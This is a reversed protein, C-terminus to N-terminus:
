ILNFRLMKEYLVSKSFKEVNYNEVLFKEVNFKNKTKLLFNLINSFDHGNVMFWIKEPINLKLSDLTINFHNQQNLIGAIRMSHLIKTHKLSSINKNNKILSNIYEEINLNENEFYNELKGFVNYSLFKSSNWIHFKVCGLQYAMYLATVYIKNTLNNIQSNKFIKDDTSLILTELDHTNNSLVNRVNNPYEEEFDRDVIGFLKYNNFFKILLSSQVIKIILKKNNPKFNENFDNKEKLFATVKELSIYYNNSKYKQKFKKNNFFELDRQGEILVFNPKKIKNHMNSNDYYDSSMSLQTLLIKAHKNLYEEINNLYTSYNIFKSNNENEAM